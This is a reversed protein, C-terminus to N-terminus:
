SQEDNLGGCYVKEDFNPKGPEVCIDLHKYCCRCSILQGFCFPCIECDCGPEHLFGEPTGCDHCFERHVDKLDERLPKSYM